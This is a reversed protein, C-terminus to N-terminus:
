AASSHGILVIGERAPADGRPDLLDYANALYEQVRRRAVITPANTQYLVHWVQFRARLQTDDAIADTLRAWILPSSFLGHLMVLTRKGPDYGQPLHVGARDVAHEGGVLGRLAVRFHRLNDRTTSVPLLSM